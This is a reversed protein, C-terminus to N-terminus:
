FSRIEFGYFDSLICGRFNVGPDQLHNTKKQVQIMFINKNTKQFPSGRQLMAIKPYQQIDSM